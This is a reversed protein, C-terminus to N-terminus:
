FARIARVAYTLNKNVRYNVGNAFYQLSSWGSELETSSWYYWNAFGGVVSKKLYLLNLEYKSPLYWDGYTTTVL